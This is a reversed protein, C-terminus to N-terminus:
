RKADLLVRAIAGNLNLVKALANEFEGGTTTPGRKSFIASLARTAARMTLGDMAGMAVANPKSVVVCDGDSHNNLPEEDQFTTDNLLM